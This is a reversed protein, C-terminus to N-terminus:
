MYIMCYELAMVCLEFRACLALKVDVCASLISSTSSDAGMPMGYQALTCPFVVSGALMGGQHLQHHVQPVPYTQM